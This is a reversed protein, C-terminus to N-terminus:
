ESLSRRALLLLIVVYMFNQLHLCGGDLCINTLNSINQKLLKQM